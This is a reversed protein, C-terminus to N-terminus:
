QDTNGLSEPCMGQPGPASVPQLSSELSIRIVGQRSQAEAQIAAESGNCM